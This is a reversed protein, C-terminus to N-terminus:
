RVRDATTPVRTRFRHISFSKQRHEKDGFKDWVQYCGMIFAMVWDQKLKEDPLQYVSLQNALKSLYFSRIWGYNPNDDVEEGDVERKKRGKTMLIKAYTLAKGKIDQDVSKDFRIPKLDKLLKRMITGGLAGTDMITIANNYDSIINRLVAMLEYPDGGKKSFAYVIEVPIETIDWVLFVSEDGSEAMGWDVSVMYERDQRPERSKFSGNWLKEVIVVPFMTGGTSVFAGDLIQKALVPDKAKLMKAHSERKAESIFINDMYSGGIVKYPYEGTKAQQIMHFFYQQSKAEEDPTSILMIVKGYDGLRSYVHGELEDELHHSQVCEDYTVFGGPSGQISSGQDSGMSFAYTLSNNTYRLEGLNENKGKFFNKLKLTDRNSFRQGDIVWTFRGELIDEIYKLCNKAQRSVPSLGFSIYKFDDYGPGPIVGIKYYAFKIHLIALWVTKGSRNGANVLIEVLDEFAYEGGYLYEDLLKSARSQFPNLKIGLWYEAFFETNLRGQNIAKVQNLLLIKQQLGLKQFEM